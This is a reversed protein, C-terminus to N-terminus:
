YSVLDAVHSPDSALMSQLAGTVARILFQARRNCLQPEPVVQVNKPATYMGDSFFIGWEQLLSKWIFVLYMQFYLNLPSSFLTPCVVPSFIPTLQQGRLGLALIMHMTVTLQHLLHLHDFSAQPQILALATLSPTSTVSIQEDYDWIDECCNVVSGSGPPQM